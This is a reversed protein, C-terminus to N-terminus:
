TSERSVLQPMLPRTLEEPLPQGKYWTVLMEVAREGLSISDFRITTLTPRM